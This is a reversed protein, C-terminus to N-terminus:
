KGRIANIFKPMIMDKAIEPANEVYTEFAREMNGGSYSFTNGSYSATWPQIWYGPVGRFGGMVNHLVDYASDHQYDQPMDTALFDIKIIPDRKNGVLEINQGSHLDASVGSRNMHRVYSVPTYQEYYQDMYSDFMNIAEQYLTLAILYINDDIVKDIRKELEAMIKNTVRDIIDM